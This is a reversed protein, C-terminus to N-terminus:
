KAHVGYSGSYWLLVDLTRLISLEPRDISRRLTDARNELYDDVTLAEWWLRWDNHGNQGTVRKVVKDQIPILHLRKRAMIKSARTPGIGKYSRILRWLKIASSEAGLQENFESESLTGLPKETITLLLDSIEAADTVLIGIGAPNADISTQLMSVAYLDSATFRNRPNNDSELSEFHAGTNTPSFYERLYAIGEDEPISEIASRISMAQNDMTLCIFVMNLPRTESLLTKMIEVVSYFLDPVHYKCGSGNEPRINTSLELAPSCRRLVSIRGTALRTARGTRM